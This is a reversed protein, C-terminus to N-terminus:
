SLSAKIVSNLNVLSLKHRELVGLESLESKNIFFVWLLYLVNSLTKVMKLSSSVLM